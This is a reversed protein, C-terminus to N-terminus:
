YERNKALRDAYKVAEGWPVGKDQSAQADLAWNRQQQTTEVELEVLVRNISGRVHDPLRHGIRILAQGFLCGPQRDDPNYLCTASDGKDYRFDPREEALERVAKEIAEFTLETM